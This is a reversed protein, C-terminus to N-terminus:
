LKYSVSKRSYEPGAPSASSFHYGDGPSVNFRPVADGAADTAFTIL